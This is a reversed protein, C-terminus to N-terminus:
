STRAIVGLMVLIVGLILARTVVIIQRVLDKDWGCSLHKREQNNAWQTWWCALDALAVFALTTFM